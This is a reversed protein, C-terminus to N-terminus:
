TRGRTRLLGPGWAEVDAVPITRTHRAAARALGRVLLPGTTRDDGFGWRHPWSRRDVVVATVTLSGGTGSDTRRALRLDVVHGIPDGTEDLVTRGLLESGKM